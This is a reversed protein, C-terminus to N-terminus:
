EDECEVRILAGERTAKVLERATYGMFQKSLKQLAQKEKATINSKSGKDFGFLFFARDNKKFAIITRFGGSKGQGARAVRKKFLYMGLSAEVRGKEVDSIAKCLAENTLDEDDSWRNFVKTKFIEIMHLLTYCM